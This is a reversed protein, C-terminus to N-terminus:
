FSVKKWKQVLEETDLIENCLNLHGVILEVSNPNKQLAKELVAIKKEIITRTSAKRRERGTATFSSKVSDEQRVVEEQLDVLSLWTQIDHPKDRLIKNLEGTKQLVESERSDRDAVSAEQSSTHSSERQSVDGEGPLKLSIYSRGDGLDVRQSSMDVASQLMVSINDTNEPVQFDKISWYRVMQDRKRKKKGKKVSLEVVQHKGLGLCTANSKLKYLAIDLRYLTDYMRNAM